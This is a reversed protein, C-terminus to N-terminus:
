FHNGATTNIAILPLQPKLSKDLGEYDKIEGGNALVLAIGKACDHPSGGGFSIVFDENSNKFAEIGDNVNKKTPNPHTGDFVEYLVGVNDLVKLLVDVLKVDVLVKDTVILAKKSDSNKLKM